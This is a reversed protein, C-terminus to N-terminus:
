VSYAYQDARRRPSATVPWEPNAYAGRWAGPPLKESRVFVRTMHSQDTFGCRHAIEVIPLDSNRLLEKARDLRRQTLWKHPPEGTTERFARAFHGPSMQIQAAVSPIAIPEALRDIMWESVTKLRRPTLGGRSISTSTKGYTRVIHAHLALAIWDVFLSDTEPGYLSARAVLAQALGLIVADSHGFEPIQLDTVRSLRNAYSIEDLTARTIYFRSFEFPERIHRCPASELDFMYLAGRPAPPLTSQRGGIWAAGDQLLPRHHVHIAFARESPPTLSEMPMGTDGVVHSMVLPIDSQDALAAASTARPGHFRREIAKAHAEIDFAMM